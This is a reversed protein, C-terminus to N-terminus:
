RVHLLKVQHVNEKSIPLFQYLEQAERLQKEHKLHSLLNKAQGTGNKVNKNKHATTPLQSM